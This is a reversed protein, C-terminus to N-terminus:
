SQEKRPHTAHFFSVSHEGDDDAYDTQLKELHAVLEHLRATSLNLNVLGLTATRQDTEAGILGAKLAATFRTEARRFAM